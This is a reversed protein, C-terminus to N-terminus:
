ADKGNRGFRAADSIAGFLSNARGDNLSNSIWGLEAAGSFRARM